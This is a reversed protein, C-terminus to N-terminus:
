EDWDMDAPNDKSTIAEVDRVDSKRTIFGKPLDTLSGKSGRALAAAIQYERSRSLTGKHKDVLGAIKADSFEPNDRVLLMAQPLWFRRQNSQKEETKADDSKFIAQWNRSSFKAELESKLKDGFGEYELRALENVTEKSQCAVTVNLTESVYM